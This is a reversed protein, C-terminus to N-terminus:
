LGLWARADLSRRGRRVEFYIPASGAAGIRASKSLADGPQVEVSGLSGYVTRYRSGHDVIVFLGYEDNRESLVVRGAAAARVSSGSTSALRLATGGGDPRTTTEITAAAALPLALAGRQTSFRELTEPQAPQPDSFTLGAGLQGPITLPSTNAADSAAGLQAPSPVPSPEQTRALAQELLQLEEETAAIQLALESAERELAGQGRRVDSLRALTRQTLHEFHRVRSAHSMLADLGSAMPLLGGRRLRYLARVDRALAQELAQRRAPTERLQATVAERETRQLALAARREALKGELAGASLLAVDLAGQAEAIGFCAVMALVIAALRHSM